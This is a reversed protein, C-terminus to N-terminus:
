FIKCTRDDQYRKLFDMLNQICTGHNKGWLGVFLSMKTLNESILTDIGVKAKVVFFNANSFGAAGVFSKRCLSHSYHLLSSSDSNAKFLNIFRKVVTNCTQSFSAVRQQSEM